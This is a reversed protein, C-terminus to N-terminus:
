RTRCDEARDEYFYKFPNERLVWVIVSERSGLLRVLLSAMLNSGFGKGQFDPSVYLTYVEGESKM